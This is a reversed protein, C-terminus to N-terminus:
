IEFPYEKYRSEMKAASFIMCVEDGYWRPAPRVTGDTFPHLGCGQVLIADNFGDPKCRTMRVEVGCDEDADGNGYVKIAESPDFGAKRMREIVTM